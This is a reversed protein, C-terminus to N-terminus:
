SADNWKEWEDAAQLEGWGTYEGIIWLTENIKATFHVHARQKIAPDPNNAYRDRHEVLGSLEVFLMTLFDRPEYRPTFEPV